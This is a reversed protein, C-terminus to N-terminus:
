NNDTGRIGKQGFIDYEGGWDASTDFSGDAHRAIKTIGPRIWFQSIRISKAHGDFFVMNSQGNHRAVPVRMPDGGGNWSLRFPNFFMTGASFKQLAGYNDPDKLFQTRGADAGSWADGGVHVCAGDAFLVMEAPKNVAAFSSTSENWTSMTDNITIGINKREGTPNVAWDPGDTASQDPCGTIGFNKVYPQIIYPWFRKWDQAMGTGWPSTGTFNGIVSDPYDLHAPLMVEDFDQIYMMTGIGVQKLNSLCTIARAKARAQAFVPFLIAALIAIIAIVVLLEILTFGRRNM